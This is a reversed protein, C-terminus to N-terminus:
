CSIIFINVGLIYLQTMIEHLLVFHYYHSFRLTCANFFFFVIMFIEDRGDFLSAGAEQTPEFRFRAHSSHSHTAAAAAPSRSPQEHNPASPEAFNHLECFTLQSSCSRSDEFSNLKLSMTFPEKSSIYAM